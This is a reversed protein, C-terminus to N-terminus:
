GGVSRRYKGDIKAKIKADLDQFKPNSVLASLVKPDTLSRILLDTDIDSPVNIFDLIITLTEEVEIKETGSNATNYEGTFINFDSVSPSDGGAALDGGAAGGLGGIYNMADNVKSKINDVIGCVKSYATSFPSTIASVVGSLASSIKGPLGQIIGVVGTVVSSAKNKANSVWQSGASIISSVVSLLISLARGPLQRFFSIVGSLFQSAKQRGTNVWRTAVSIINTLTNMLYARVRGAVQSLYLSIGNLFNLGAQIAWTLLNAVLQLILGTLASTLTTWVNWLTSGVATIVSLLDTQGTQFQTFVDILPQVVEVLSAWLESLWTFAPTLIEMIYSGLPVLAGNYFDSFASAILQVITVVAMIRYKFEEWVLSIGTILAAVVDFDGNTSINFFSAIWDITNGIAGCIWNFADGIAKITAQVDPHNIFANWLRQVGAWLVQLMQGVDDWYGFYKGVEYVAVALAVLAIVVLMIPNAALIANWVATAAAVLTIEGSLVGVIGSYVATAVGVIYKTAASIKQAASERLTALTLADEEAKMIGLFQLASKTKGAMTDLVSLAPAISPAVTAFGSAVAMVGYGYQLWKKGRADLAGDRDADLFQVLKTLAQDVYPLFEDGLSRGALGWYKKLVTLKGSTTNMMDSVDGSSKLCTDLAQTYGDIDDAAGSWGAAELKDKTIGFNERLMEFEGNLGKGAAQMLGVAEEGDKGMLIARQGIDLIVPELAKLQSESANASMNIVSMAQSIQDLGVLSRNTDADMQNWLSSSSNKFYDMSKGAGLVAYSLNFIRDRNISAGVTMDAMSKLGIGGMVSSMIGGLGTFANGLSQIKSRVTSLASSLNSKIFSGFSSVKGKITDWKNGVYTQIATGVTQAKGKLTETSNGMLEMKSRAYDLSGSWTDTLRDLQQFKSVAEQCKSNLEYFVQPNHANNLRNLWEQTEDDLTNFKIISDQVSSNYRKFQSAGKSTASATFSSVDSISTKLQQMKQETMQSAQGMKQNSNTATNGLKDFANDVSKAPGSAQDIAKIIVELLDSAM